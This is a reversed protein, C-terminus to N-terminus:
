KFCYFQIELQNTKEKLIKGKRVKKMTKLLKSKEEQRKLLVEQQV